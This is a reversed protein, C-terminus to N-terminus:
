RTLTLEARVMGPEVRATLTADIPRLQGERQLAELAAILADYGIAAFVLRARGEQWDLQTVSSRLNRQALIRELTARADPATQATPARALGAIEDNMRRAAALVAARGPQSARLAEADRVLPQWLLAWALAGLVVVLIGTLLHREGRSKAALWRIVSDPARIGAFDTRM